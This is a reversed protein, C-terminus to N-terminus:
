VTVDYKLFSLYALLFLAVNWLVLLALDVSANAIGEWVSPENEAFMPFDSMDGTYREPRPSSIKIQQGKFGFSWTQGFRSSRVVKGVKGRVYDEYVKQYNHLEERFRRMRVYGANAVEEAAYQFLAAPSVRAFNRAM